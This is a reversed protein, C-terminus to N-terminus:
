PPACHQAAKPLPPKKEKRHQSNGRNRRSLEELRNKLAEGELRKCCKHGSLMGRKLLAFNLKKISEDHGPVDQWTIGRWQAGQPQMGAEPKAPQRRREAMMAAYRAAVGESAVTAPSAAAPKVAPANAATQRAAAPGEAAAKSIGGIGTRPRAAKQVPAMAAVASTEAKAAEVAARHRADYIFLHGEPDFRLTVGRRVLDHLVDTFSIM